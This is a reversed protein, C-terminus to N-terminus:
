NNKRNNTQLSAILIIIKMVPTLIGRSLIEKVREGPTIVSKM